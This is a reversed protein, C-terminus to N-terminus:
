APTPSLNPISDPEIILVFRLNANTAYPELINYIPTIYDQEYTEIGTLPQTPPNAAISIEGNSALAACDRQPLDYIVITVVVPETGVQQSLATTIHQALGLRGNNSSGGTIAGMHDMWVATPYTEVVTMQNALTSGSAETAIATKVEATYDPNLYQTAGVFPNAVHQAFACPVVLALWFFALSLRNHVALRCNGIRRLLSFQHHM